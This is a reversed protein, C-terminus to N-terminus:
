PRIAGWPSSRSPPPPPVLSQPLTPPLERSQAQALPSPPPTACSPALGQVRVDGGAAHGGHRLGRRLHQPWVPRAAGHRPTPTAPRAKSAARAEWGPSTASPTQPAPPRAPWAAPPDCYSSTPHATTPWRSHRCLPPLPFHPPYGWFGALIGAEGVRFRPPRPLGTGWPCGVWTLPGVQSCCVGGWVVMAHPPGGTEEVCGRQQGGWGPSPDSPGLAVM